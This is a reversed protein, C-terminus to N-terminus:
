LKEGSRDLLRVQLRWFRAQVVSVIALHLDIMLHVLRRVLKM